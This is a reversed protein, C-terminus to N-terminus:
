IMESRKVPIIDTYVGYPGSVTGIVSEVGYFRRMNEETIVNKIDDYVYSGDM